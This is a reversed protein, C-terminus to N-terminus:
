LYRRLFFWATPSSWKVFDVLELIPGGEGLPAVSFNSFFHALSKATVTFYVYKFPGSRDMIPMVWPEWWWPFDPLIKNKQFTLSNLRNWSKPFILSNNRIGQSQDPFTLSNQESGPWVNYIKWINRIFFVYGCGLIKGGREARRMKLYLRLEVQRWAQEKNEVYALINKTSTSSSVNDELQKMQIYVVIRLDPSTLSFEGWFTLCLWPIKDACTLPFM